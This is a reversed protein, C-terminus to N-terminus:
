AAADTKDHQRSKSDKANKRQSREDNLHALYEMEARYRRFGEEGQPSLPVYKKTPNKLLAMMTVALSRAVAVKAKKKAIKGGSRSIRLGKLKIDTDKATEKTVVNACEILVTRVLKSGAKTLHLQKDTDGSQDKRPVLGLYPGIDRAHEFRSTECGIAAAFVSAGITGIGYVEKCREVTDNFHETKALAEIAKDYAAIKQAIVELVDMLPWTSEELLTPWNSKDHKHLNEASCKEIRFGISKGFGKLQNTIQTRQKILLQRAKHLRLMQQSEEDRLKVSHLLGIDALGLKALEYADNRDTKTNSNSITPLRGANAIFTKFGLEKFTKDMWRCHTGTEFVVPWARNFRSFAETFGGATTACSTELVICRQGSPQKELVCITSTKDGVDVGIITYYEMRDGKPKHTTTQVTVM